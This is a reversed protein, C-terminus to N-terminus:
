SFLIQLVTATAASYQKTVTNYVYEKATTEKNLKTSILIQDNDIWRIFKPLNNSPMQAIANLGMLIGTIVFVKKM